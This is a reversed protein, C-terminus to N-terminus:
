SFRSDYKKLIMLYIRYVLWGVLIGLLAGCIVDAPFHVGNYIRSYGVLFALSFLPVAAIPFIFSTFTAIAFMNSSHNSIFSTGAYPTRVVVELNATNGPRPRQINKKFGWNGVGDSIGVCILTMAIILVAKKAGRLYSYLFLLFPIISWQFWATKHLDTIFPFFRDAWPSTWVSNILILLEKDLGVIFDLM